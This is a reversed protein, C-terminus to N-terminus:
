NATLPPCILRAKTLLAQCARNLAMIPMAKTLSLAQNATKLSDTVAALDNGINSVIGMGTIVVRKM